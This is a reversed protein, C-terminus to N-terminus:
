LTDSLIESELNIGGEILHKLNTSVWNTFILKKKKQGRCPFHLLCNLTLFILFARFKWEQTHIFLQMWLRPFPQPHCFKEAASHLAHVSTLCPLLVWPPSPPCRDRYKWSWTLTGLSASRKSDFVPESNPESSQILLQFILACIKSQGGCDIVRSMDSLKKAKTEKDM